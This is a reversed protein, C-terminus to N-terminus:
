GDMKGLLKSLELARDRAALVAREFLEPLGGERLVALARETTGGPSTVRARLEAPSTDSCEIAMKGAGLATQVALMRATPPTLGLRTGAQELAEMVLFFYAPGSGSLATVADMLAEEQLWLTTGVARLISEAAERQEATVRRNAFLATASCGVLAATNPMARVVAAGGGLWAELSATTVGAAISICLKSKGAIASSIERAVAPVVQPKVAILVVDSARAIELNSPGIGIGYTDRLRRCKDGDTDWVRLRSPTYGHAMLGGILSSSMNGAGIVAIALHSTV